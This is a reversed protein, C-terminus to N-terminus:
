LAASTGAFIGKIFMFLLFMSLNKQMAFYIM